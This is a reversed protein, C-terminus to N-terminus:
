VYSPRVPRRLWRLAVLGLILHMVGAAAAAVHLGTLFASKADTM